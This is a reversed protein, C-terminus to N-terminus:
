VTVRKRAGPGRGTGPHERRRRRLPLYRAAVRKPPAPPPITRRRSPLLTLDTRVRECLFQRRIELGLMEALACPVANGIQRHATRRDGAIQYDDPFTQLRCLEKISLLRNKWHFPGTAPGPVAQITWSPENKALKLLFSWYRTRWGFLPAGGCRPTHWLYNKGEPISGLLGTWRGTPELEETWTDVDLDGIADWTSMYPELSSNAVEGRPGHTPPPLVFEAGERQALVFIRERRQPIGYSAANIHIVQPKYKSGVRKNIEAIQRQLLRLGEDKGDFALGKVNELVFVKPIAAEVIELYAKLTNARPDKLRGSDGNSWYGSKSFPQCPPGGALLTTEGPKLGAQRLIEAPAIRHIDGPESIKWAPRNQRLTRQADEDIEVCLRTYFGAAELGLDLGGAGAFLSIVSRLSAGSNLGHIKCANTM